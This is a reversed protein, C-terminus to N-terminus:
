QFPEEHVGLLANVVSPLPLAVVEPLSVTRPVEVKAVVVTDDSVVVLKRVLIRVASEEVMLESVPPSMVAVDDSVEFPVSVTVPCVVSPLAEVELMVM